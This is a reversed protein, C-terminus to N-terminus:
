CSFFALVDTEPERKRESPTLSLASSVWRGVLVALVPACQPAPPGTRGAGGRCTGRGAGAGAGARRPGTWAAVAAERHAGRVALLVGPHAEDRVQWLVLAATASMKHRKERVPM